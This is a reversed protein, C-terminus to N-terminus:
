KSPSELEIGLRTTPLVKSEDTKYYQRVPHVGRSPESPLSLGCTKSKRQKRKARRYETDFYHERFVINLVHIQVYNSVVHFM